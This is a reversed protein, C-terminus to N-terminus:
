KKRLIWINVEGVQDTAPVGIQKKDTVTVIDARHRDRTSAHNIRQKIMSWKGHKTFAKICITCLLVRRVLAPDFGKREHPM